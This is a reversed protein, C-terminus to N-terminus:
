GAAVKRDALAQIPSDPSENRGRMSPSPASRKIGITNEYPQFLSPKPAAPHTVAQSLQGHASLPWM